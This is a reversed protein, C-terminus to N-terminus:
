KMCHIRFIFFWLNKNIKIHKWKRGCSRCVISQITACTLITYIIAIFQITLLMCLFLSSCLSINRTTRQQLQIDKRMDKQNAMIYSITMLNFVISFISPAMLCPWCTFFLRQPWDGILNYDKQLHLNCAKPDKNSASQWDYIFCEFLKTNMSIYTYKHITYILNSILTLPTISQCSCPRYTHWGM